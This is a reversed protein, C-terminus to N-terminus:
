ARGEEKRKRKGRRKRRRGGVRRGVGLQRSQPQARRDRQPHDDDPWLVAGVGGWGSPSGTLVACVTCGNGQVTSYLIRCQVTSYGASYQLTGQVTSYLVRCQVTSYGASYQLTGQVTSYLVRCQVTSYGASYQLTGQVTSYLVRCQVTSYGASYQLTGQVTSYLVRCQVTSYWWIEGVIALYPTWLNPSPASNRHTISTVVTHYSCHVIEKEELTDNTVMVYLVHM